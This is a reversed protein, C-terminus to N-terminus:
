DRLRTVEVGPNMRKLLAIFQEKDAPSIYIRGVKSFRVDLRDLSLAASPLFNRIEKIESIQKVEIRWRLPGSQVRLYKADVTYGTGFWLWAIFGYLPLVVILLSLSERPPLLVILPFFSIAPGWVLLGLWFDRKSPFYRADPRKKSRKM